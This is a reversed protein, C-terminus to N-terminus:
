GLSPQLKGKHAGPVVDAVPIRLTGHERLVAAHQVCYEPQVLQMAVNVAADSAPM